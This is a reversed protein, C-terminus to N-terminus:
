TNWRYLMKEHEMLLTGDKADICNMVVSKRQSIVERMNDHM